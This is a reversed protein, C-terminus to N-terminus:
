LKDQNVTTSSDMSMSHSFIDFSQIDLCAIKNVNFFLFIRFVCFITNKIYTADKYVGHKHHETHKQVPWKTMTGMFKVQGCQKCCKKKSCRKWKYYLLIIRSKLISAVPIDFWAVEFNRTEVTCLYDM